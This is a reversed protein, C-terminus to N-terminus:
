PREGIEFEIRIVACDPNHFQAVANLADKKSEYGTNSSAIIWRTIREPVNEIVPSFSYTSPAIVVRGDKDVIILLPRGEVELVFNGDIRQGILHAPANDDTFRIPKEFDIKKM